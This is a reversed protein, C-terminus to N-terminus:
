LLEDSIVSVNKETDSFMEPTLSVWFELEMSDLQKQGKEENKRRWTTSPLLPNSLTLSSLYM